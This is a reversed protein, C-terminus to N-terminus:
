LLSPVTWDIWRATDLTFGGDSRLVNTDNADNADNTDNTDNAGADLTGGDM